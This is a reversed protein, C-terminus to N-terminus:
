VNYFACFLEQWLSVLAQDYITHLNFLRDTYWICKTDISVHTNLIWPPWFLTQVRPFQFLLCYHGAVTYTRLPGMDTQFQLDGLGETLPKQNPRSQIEKAYLPQLFESDGELKLGKETIRLNGMGDWFGMWHLCTM